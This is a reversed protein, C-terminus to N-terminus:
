RQQMWEFSPGERNVAVYKADDKWSVWANSDDDYSSQWAISFKTLSPLLPILPSLSDITPYDLAPSFAQDFDLTRLRRLAYLDTIESPDLDMGTMRLEELSQTILGTAFCHLMRMHGKHISLKKIRLKAFLASWQTM